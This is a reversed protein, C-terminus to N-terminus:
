AQGLPSLGLSQARAIAQTRSHVCLKGYINRTHTKVTNLALFLRSAIEQNTLGSAILQLVQMERESLPELLGTEQDQVSSLDAQKPEALPFAALLRRVYNPAIERPLAKYLLRAMPRGEDVFTRVIGEPEALALAKELWTLAEDLCGQAQRTLAQLAMIEIVRSTHGGAEAAVLLRGLLRSAKDLRGQAILVRSLALYDILLFFGIEHPAKPEGSDLGCAAIWRSAAELEDQALWLRAQWAAAWSRIWPPLNFTRYINEIKQTIETAGAWDGKSFLIRMQCMYSWGLTAMDEGREAREVGEKAREVAGDLDGREALVEGWIAQLCGVVTTQSLGCEDALRIQQRCLEITQQLKGQARLTVAVKLHALLSFYINGTEKCATAAELRARYATTMDGQFACVDGITTAAAGRWASEQEPLYELAQRAHQIIDPVDGRHSAMFARIVAVQGRLKMTDFETLHDQEHPAPDIVQHIHTDLAREAAQLCQEALAQEGKVFLYWSHPICLRPKSCVLDLPLAALWRRLKAHEGVEWVVDARDDILRAARELDEAQLAHEISEDAFGNQEYWASARHHLAPVQEMQTQCLRLRLLDAFLSHYRYWHREEDLPILFLNSYELMELTAQGNDQGTLADCLSGTMQDLIATQRLFARVSEPQQELVEEVLYDLVIRHSGTFSKIFAGTDQRSQMSIAALQLGTIWGETRSELAAIDTTSLDLGMARNLFEAAESSTLRLDAARLETLQGRGRLRALPLPPDERTAVVLHMQPPQRQLLFALANHIPQAEILHYDDLVLIIRDPITVIENILSTLVAEVPPPRSPSAHLLRLARDGIISEAGEGRGMATATGALPGQLAAILYTLFRGLDDDGEDLSLWAVHNVIKSQPTEIGSPSATAAQLDDAALRLNHVWSSVLTTKGFGAPASILSLRRHLGANLREILCQRPVMRARLPPVYLKTQLLPYSQM